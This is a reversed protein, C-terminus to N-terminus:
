RREPEANRAEVVTQIRAVLEGFRVPKTLYDDAGADFARVKDKDSDCVTLMVVSPRRPLQGIRRCVEIGDMGPMELDLLVVDYHDSGLLTLAEEGSRAEVAEFGCTALSTRLARRLSSQDDVVLVKLRTRLQGRASRHCGVFNVICVTM